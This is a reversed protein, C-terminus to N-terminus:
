FMKPVNIYFSEWALFDNFNMTKNEGLYNIASLTHANHTAFKPYISDVEFLKKACALYSLDTISKKTFVSYNDYGYVQAHKIEYDWYAGKVLRLHMPVRNNVIEKIWDIANIARKGYAQLALGFGPWNKIKKSEAIIRIIELSVGLRDQEEADITIEVDNSMGLETLAILRPVLNSKIDDYKRTEYSPCLASIKISVGNNNGNALNLKGVEM